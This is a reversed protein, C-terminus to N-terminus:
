YQFTSFLFAHVLVEDLSENIDAFMKCNYTLLQSVRHTLM